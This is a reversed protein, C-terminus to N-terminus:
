RKLNGIPLQAQVSIYRPPLTYNRTQPTPPPPPPNPIVILCVLRLLCPTCAREVREGILRTCGEEQRPLLVVCILSIGDRRQEKNVGKCIPTPPPDSWGVKYNWESECKWGLWCSVGLM